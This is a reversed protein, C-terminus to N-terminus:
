AKRGGVLWIVLYATAFIDLALLLLPLVYNLGLPEMAQAFVALGENGVHTNIPAGSWSMFNTVTRLLGAAVAILLQFFAIFVALLDVLLAALRYIFYFVGDLLQLLWTFPKVLWSFFGSLLNALGSILYGIFDAM